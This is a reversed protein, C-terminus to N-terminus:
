RVASLTETTTVAVSFALVVAVAISVTVGPKRCGNVGTFAAM